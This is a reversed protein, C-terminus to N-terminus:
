EEPVRGGMKKKLDSLIKEQRMRFYEGSEATQGLAKMIEIEAMDNIAPTKKMTAEILEEITKEKKEKQSAEGKARKVGMPRNEEIEITAPVETNRPM